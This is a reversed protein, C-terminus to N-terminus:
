TPEQASPVDPEPSSWSVSMWTMPPTRSPTVERTTQGRMANLQEPRNLTITAIGNEKTYLNDQYNM